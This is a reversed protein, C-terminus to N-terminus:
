LAYIFTGLFLYLWQDDLSQWAAIDINLNTLQIFRICVYHRRKHILFHKVPKVLETRHLRGLTIASNEFLRVFVQSEYWHITEGLITLARSLGYENTTDINLVKM